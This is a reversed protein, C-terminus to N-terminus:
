LYIKQYRQISCRCTPCKGSDEIIKICCLQCTKAHGCPLFAFIGNKLGYCVNCDKSDSFEKEQPINKLVIKVIEENESLVAHDLASEGQSTTLNPNANHEFLM